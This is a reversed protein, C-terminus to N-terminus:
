AEMVKRFAAARLTSVLSAAKEDELELWFRFARSGLQDILWDRDWEPLAEPAQEILFLARERDDEFAPVAPLSAGPGESVVTLKPLPAARHLRDWEADAAAKQEDTLDAIQRPGAAAEAAAALGPTQHGIELRTVAKLGAARRAAHALIDAAAEPASARSRRTIAKLAATQDRVQRKQAAKVEIALSQRDTLGLRDLAVAEGIFTGDDPDFCWIRGADTEDYRVFVKRGAYAVLEPGMFEANDLRIGAKGVTRLGDGSPAEALLVDLARESAITRIAGTWEAAVAYPTRGDLGRHPDHAYLDACWRDCFAQLGDAHMSIDVCEGRTGFRQAFSRRSEIAKRDTVNHGIYGPLLEVLGHSFTRFAREMHPKQEPTYATCYDAQIQLDALVRQIHRSKYDSGNDMKLVDPVGWELIARRLLAAIATARSTPAVHLLKRRSYVDIVGIVAHRRGDLLMVDAPTSDIEWLGNLRTVKASRDGIAFQLQSRHGDPNAIAKLVQKNTQKWDALWRQLARLSPLARGDDFRALVARHVLKASVHPADAILGVVLDHIEPDSDIVGSGKRNGYKGGLASAEGARRRDELVRLTNVSLGPRVQYVWPPLDEVEVDGNGASKRVKIRRANYLSCFAYRQQELSGGAQRTRDWFSLILLAAEARLAQRDGTPVDQALSPAAPADPPLLAGAKLMQRALWLRTPEPLLDARYERKRGRGASRRVQYKHSRGHWGSKEALKFVGSQSEPMGPAGALDAASYWHWRVSM